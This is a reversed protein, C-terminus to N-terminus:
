GKSLPSRRRDYLARAKVASFLAGAVRNTLHCNAAVRDIHHRTKAVPFRAFADIETNQFAGSTTCM